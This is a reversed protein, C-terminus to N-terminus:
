VPPLGEESGEHGWDGCLSGAWVRSPLGVESGGNIGAFAEM